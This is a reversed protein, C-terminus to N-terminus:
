HEITAWLHQCKKLFKKSKNIQKIRRETIYELLQRIKIKKYIAM